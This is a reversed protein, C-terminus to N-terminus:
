GSQVRYGVQLNLASTVGIIVTSLLGGLGRLGAVLVWSGGLLGKVEFGLVKFGLVKFGM